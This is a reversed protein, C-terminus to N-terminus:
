NLSLAVRVGGPVPKATPEDLCAPPAPAPLTVGDPCTAGSLAARELAFLLEFGSLVAPSPM